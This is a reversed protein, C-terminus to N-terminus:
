DRRVLVVTADEPHQGGELFDSLESSLENLMASPTDGLADCLNEKLGELGFVEGAANKMTSVGDTALALTDGRGLQLPKSEYAAAKAQGIPQTSDAPIMECTGDAHIRGAVIGDGVLCHQAVGTKPCIWAAGFDIRNRGEGEFLIWNLARAFLHPAESYLAALRFAARMEAMYRPLLHLEVQLKAVIIAATQDRLQVIDYFDCCRTAGMHRYAAIQMEDWKPLAGPTLADQTARAILLEAQVTGERAAVSRELVAEIPMAICSAMARFENLSTHDFPADAPDREVYVKGLKGGRGVLPSAMASGVGEIPVTPVCVHQGQDLCRSQTTHSFAPRECPQGAHTLALSVDFEGHEARRLGIWGRRGGFTRLVAALAPAVSDAVTSVGSLEMTLLAAAELHERSISVTEDGKLIITGLPLSEGYRKTLAVIREHQLEERSKDSDIFFRIAFEGVEIEDAHRLKARSKQVARNLSTPTALDLVELWWIGEEDQALRAQQAALRPDPLHVVCKPDSGITIVADEPRLTSRLRRNELVMLQM